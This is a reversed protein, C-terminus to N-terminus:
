QAHNLGSGLGATGIVVFSLMHGDDGVGGAVLLSLALTFGVARLWAALQLRSRRLLTM